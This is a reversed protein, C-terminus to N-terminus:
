RPSNRRQLYNLSRTASWAQSWVELCFEPFRKEIYGVKSLRRTHKLTPTRQARYSPLLLNTLRYDTKHHLRNFGQGQARGLSSIAYRRGWSITYWERMPFLQPSYLPVRHYPRHYM